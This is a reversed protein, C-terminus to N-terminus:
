PLREPSGPRARLLLQPAASDASARAEGGGGAAAHRASLADPGARGGERRGAEEQTHDAPPAEGLLRFGRANCECIGTGDDERSLRLVDLRDRRDQLLQLLLHAEEERGQSLISRGM